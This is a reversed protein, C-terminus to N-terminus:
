VKGYRRNRKEYENKIYIVDDEGFDPWYKDMFLLESYACQWLLFNSIRKEGGTRVIMDPDPLSSTYMYSGVTKEDYDTVGADRARIFASIIEKRSSYSVAVCLTLVDNHSTKQEADTIKRRLEESLLSLEGIFKLRIGKDVLENIETDLYSSFLRMLFDVEEHPREWNEYSFAYVTLYPIKQKLVGAVVSKLAEAGKKHGFTRPASWKEAWRGNGDMIIALHELRCSAM